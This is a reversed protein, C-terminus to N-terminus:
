VVASTSGTIKGFGYRELRGYGHFVELAARRDGVSSSLAIKVALRRNDRSWNNKEYFLQVSLPAIGAKKMGCRALKLNAEM